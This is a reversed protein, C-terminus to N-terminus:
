ECYNLYEEESCMESFGWRIAIETAQHVFDQISDTKKYKDNAIIIFRREKEKRLKDKFYLKM